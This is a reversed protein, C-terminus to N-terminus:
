NLLEIIITLLKKMNKLLFYSLGRNNYYIDNNPEKEIKETYEEIEKLLEEKKKEDM